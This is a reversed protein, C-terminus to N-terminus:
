KNVIIDPTFITDSHHLARDVIYFDFRITDYASFPNNILLDLTITGEISESELESLRPIRANQSLPLDIKIYQGNQKEYYNCFFNYYYTSATDFPSSLDNKDLGIDGDGDQFHFTLKGNYDAGNIPPNKEFSVFSIHPIKSFQPTPECSFLLFYLVGCTFLHLFTTNIKKRFRSFNRKM